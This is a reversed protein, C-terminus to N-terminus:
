KRDDDLTMKFGTAEKVEEITPRRKLKIYLKIVDDIHDIFFNYTAIEEPSKSADRSAKLSKIIIWKSASM